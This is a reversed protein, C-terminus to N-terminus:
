LQEITENETLEDDCGDDDVLIFAPATTKKTDFIISYILTVAIVCALSYLGYQIFDTRFYPDTFPATLITGLMRGAQSFNLKFSNAYIIATAAYVSLATFSVSIFFCPFIREAGKRGTFLRYSLFSAISLVACAPLTLLLSTIKDTEDKGFKLGDAPFVFMYLVIIVVFFLLGGLLAGLVGFKKDRLSKNENASVTSNKLEETCQDCTYLARNNIISYYAKGNDATDGCESCVPMPLYGKESLLTCIANIAEDFDMLEADTDFSVGNIHVEYNSLALLELAKIEESLKLKAMADGDETIPTFFNIFASKKYGTSSVSVLFSNILGYACDDLLTFNYTNAYAILPNSLM